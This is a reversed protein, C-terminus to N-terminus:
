RTSGPPSRNPERSAYVSVTDDIVVFTLGTENLLVLLVERAKYRGEISGVHINEVPANIVVQIRSQRSFEILASELSGAAIHFTEEEELDALFASSWSRGSGGVALVILVVTYIRTKVSRSFLDRVITKPYKTM